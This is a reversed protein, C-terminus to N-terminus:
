DCFLDAKIMGYIARADGDLRVETVPVLPDVRIACDYKDEADMFPIGLTLCLSVQQHRAPYIIIGRFLPPYDVNSHAM